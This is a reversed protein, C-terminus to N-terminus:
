VQQDYAAARNQYFTSLDIKKDAPCIDIADTYCKIASDYKGGRFYKNGKNKAALARELPDKPLEDEDDPLNEVEVKAKAKAPTAQKSDSSDGTKKKSKKPKKAKGENPGLFVYAAGVVVLAAGGIAAWYVWSPTASGSASDSSIPKSVVSPM